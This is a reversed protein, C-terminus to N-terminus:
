FLSTYDVRKFINLNGGITANLIIRNDNCFYRKAQTYSKEMRDVKPDHWRKGYGFYEPSFHNPDPGKSTFVIGKNSIITTNPIRYKHDFGILYVKEFGMFYALQMCLYSVTGGWYVKTLSNTSFKPYKKYNSQHLFNIYITSEDKKLYKNLYAGYFKISGSFDNIEDKRDEAVLIDEIAWFNPYFGMNNYNTYIANVGFTYEDKLLKLDMNNLSSGNGIIFCRKGIYKNNFSKLWKENQTLCYLQAIYFKPNPYKAKFFFIKTHLKNIIKELFIKM